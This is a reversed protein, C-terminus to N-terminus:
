VKVVFYKGIEADHQLTLSTKKLFEDVAQTAGPWKPHNYEDFMIVGGNSVKPFFFTLVDVYSQYLDVDVHLLAVQGGKYETFTDPFFGPILRVCADSDKQPIGARRLQGVILGVSTDSWDGKKPKRFSDDEKTPEPFGEFSDFGWVLRHKKEDLSLHTLYLFTRGKGVGCEVIDGEVSKIREFQRSLYSFLRLQRVHIPLIYRSHIEYGFLGWLM